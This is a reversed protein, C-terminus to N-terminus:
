VIGGIDGSTTYTEEHYVVLPRPSRHTSPKETPLMARRLKPLQRSRFGTPGALPHQQYRVKQVTHVPLFGGISDPQAPRDRIFPVVTILFVSNGPKSVTATWTSGRLNRLFDASCQLSPENGAGVQFSVPHNRKAANIGLAQQFFM